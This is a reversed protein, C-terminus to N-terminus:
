MDKEREERDSNSMLLIALRSPKKFADMNNMTTECLLYQYTEFEYIAHFTDNETTKKIKDQFYQVGNIVVSHSPFKDCWASFSSSNDARFLIIDGVKYKVTYM